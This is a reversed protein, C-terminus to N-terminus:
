IQSEIVKRDEESLNDLIGNEKWETGYFGWCSDEIEEHEHGKDCTSKSVLQFGYVDGTLDQDYTKVENELYGKIKEADWETGMKKCQEMDCYIFGIQGSDWPDNFSKTSISIGSHDIMYVPLCVINKKKGRIATELEDWSNFNEHKFDHKDGLDYRKHFFVMVGLNDWERSSTNCDDRFIKFVRNDSLKFEEILNEM